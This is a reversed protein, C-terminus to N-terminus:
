PPARRLEPDLQSAIELDGRTLVSRPDRDYRRALASQLFIRAREYDPGGLRTASQFASAADAFRTQRYRVKGLALWGCRIEPAARIVKEAEEVVLGSKGQALALDTLRELADSRRPQERLLARYASLAEEAQGSQELGRALLWSGAESAPGVLRLHERAFAVAESGRSQALAVEGQELPFRADKPHARQATLAAASAEDLRGARRYFQVLRLQDSADEPRLVCVKRWAEGAEDPSRDSELRRAVSRFGAVDPPALRLSTVESRAVQWSQTVGDAARWVTLRDEDLEVVVGEIVRGNKLTVVDAGALGPLLMLACFAGGIRPRNM